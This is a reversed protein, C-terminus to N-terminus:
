TSSVFYKLQIFSRIKNNNGREAMKNKKVDTDVFPMKM